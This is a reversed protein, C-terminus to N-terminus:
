SIWDAFALDRASDPMPMQAAGSGDPTVVYGRPSVLILGGDPSWEPFQGRGEGVQRPGSGDPSMVFIQYLTDEGFQGHDHRASSFAISKGDPSWCPFGDEGPAHTLRLQGTGDANMVFIEYEPSTARPGSQQSM